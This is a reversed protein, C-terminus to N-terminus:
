IKKENITLIVNLNNEKSVYKDTLFGEEVWSSSDNILRMKPVNICGNKYEFINNNIYIIANDVFEIKILKSSAIYEGKNMEDYKKFHKIEIKEIEEKKNLLKISGEKVEIKILM